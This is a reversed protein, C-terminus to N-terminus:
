KGGRSRRSRWWGFVLVVLLGAVGLLFWNVPSPSQVVLELSLEGEGEPGAIAITALYQGPQAVDLDTEYFLKNISQDTTAQASIPVTDQGLAQMTVLIQADLVPAGDIPAAVGITFHLPEGARPEPPNVWVSLVYPGTQVPGAVLQGGGHARAAFGHIMLAFLIALAITLRKKTM